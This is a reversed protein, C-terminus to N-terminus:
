GSDDGYEFDRCRWIALRREVVEINRRRLVVEIQYFEKRKATKFDVNVPVPINDFYGHCVRRAYGTGVTM